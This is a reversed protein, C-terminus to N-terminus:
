ARALDWLQVGNACATALRRGDPTFAVKVVDPPKVQPLHLIDGILQGSAVDWIQAAYNGTTALLRHDASLTGYGARIGPTTHAIQTIEAGLGDGPQHYLRTQSGGFAMLVHGDQSYELGASPVREVTMVTGTRTDVFDLDYGGGSASDPRRELVAAQSGDPSIALRISARKLLQAGTLPNWAQVGRLLTVGIALGSAAFKCRAVSSGACRAALEGIMLQRGTDVAWVCLVQDYLAAVLRGDGCLDVNLIADSAAPGYSVTQRLDGTAADWVQVVNGSSTAIASGDASLAMSRVGFRLVLTRKVRLNRLQGGPLEAITVTNKSLIAARDARDSVAAARTLEWDKAQVFRLQQLKLRAPPIATPLAPRPQPTSSGPRSADNDRHNDDNAPQDDPATLAGLAVVAKPDDLLEPQIGLERALLAPVLPIRSSGGVLYTGALSAPSLGAREITAALEDASRQLDGRILDNLDQQYFLTEEPPDDLLRCVTQTSTSLEEKATQVYQLLHRQDTRATRDTGPELIAQWRGPSLQALRQGALTFLAADFNEGGLDGLGGDALVDFGTDDDRNRVM